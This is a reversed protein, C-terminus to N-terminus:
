TYHFVLDTYDYPIIKLIYQDTLFPVHPVTFVLHKIIYTQVHQPFLIEEAGWFGELQVLFWISILCLLLPFDFKTAYAHPTWM